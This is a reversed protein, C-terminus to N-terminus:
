YAINLVYFNGNHLEAVLVSFVFVFARAVCMFHLLQDHFCCNRNEDLISCFEVFLFFDHHVPFAPPGNAWQGGCKLCKLSSNRIQSSFQVLKIAGCKRGFKFIVSSTDILILYSIHLRIGNSSEFVLRDCLRIQHMPRYRILMLHAGQWDSRRRKAILGQTTCSYIRQHM